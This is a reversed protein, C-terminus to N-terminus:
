DDESLEKIMEEFSPLEMGEVSAASKIAKYAEKVTKCKVINQAILKVILKTDYAM